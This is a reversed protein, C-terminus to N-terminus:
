RRVVRCKEHGLLKKWVDQKDLGFIVFYSMSDGLYSWTVVATATAKVKGKLKSMLDELQQAFAVFILLDADNAAECVLGLPRFVFPQWEM